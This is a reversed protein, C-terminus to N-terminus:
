VSYILVKIHQYAIIWDLVTSVTYLKTPSINHNYHLHNAVVKIFVDWFIYCKCLRSNSSFSNSSLVYQM